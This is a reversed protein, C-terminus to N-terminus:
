AEDIKQISGKSYMWRALYVFPTDTSALQKLKFDNESDMVGDFTYGGATKDIFKHNTGDFMLKHDSGWSDEVAPRHTIVIVKKFGARKILEYATVTKGYRMKCDWLMTDYREFISMTYRVNRDQEDRLVIKPKSVTPMVVARAPLITKGEKVAKIADIAVDLTIPYWESKKGTDMFIKPVYGSNELVTHVDEDLFPQDQQYGDMLTVKRVALECYLLEYSVMATKTQQLIRAHSAQKLEPCNPTFHPIGYPSSFSAKGVKLHGKHADDSISYVYIVNYEAVNYKGM